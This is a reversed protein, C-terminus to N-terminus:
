SEPWIARPLANLVSGPVLRERSGSAKDVLPYDDLRFDFPLALFVIAHSDDPSRGDFDPLHDTVPVPEVPSFGTLEVERAVARSMCRHYLVVNVGPRREFHPRPAPPRNRRISGFAEAFVEFERVQDLMRRREEGTWKPREPRRRETREPVVEKEGAM